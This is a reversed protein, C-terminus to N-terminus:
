IYCINSFGIIVSLGWGYMGEESIVESAERLLVPFCHEGQFCLADSDLWVGEAANSNGLDFDQLDGGLSWHLQSM